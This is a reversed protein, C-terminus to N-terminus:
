GENWPSRSSLGARLMVRSRVAGSGTAADVDRAAAARLAAAVEEAGVALAGADVPIFLRLTM